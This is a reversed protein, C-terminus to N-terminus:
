VSDDVDEDYDDDDNGFSDMAETVAVTSPQTETETEIETESDTEIKNGTPVENPLEIRVQFADVHQEPDPKLESQTENQNRISSAPDIAVPVELSRPLLPQKDTLTQKDVRFGRNDATYFITSYQSNPLPISYYGTRALVSREYGIPLWYAREYRTDGNSLEYRYEFRGDAHRYDYADILTILRNDTSPQQIPAPPPAPAPAPASPAVLPPWHHILQHRRDTDTKITTRRPPTRPTTSTTTSTRRPRITWRAETTPLNLCQLCLLMLGLLVCQNLRISPM